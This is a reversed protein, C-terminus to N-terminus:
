SNIKSLNYSLLPCCLDEKSGPLQLTVVVPISTPYTVNLISLFVHFHMLVLIEGWFVPSRWLITELSAFLQLLSTKKNYKINSKQMM